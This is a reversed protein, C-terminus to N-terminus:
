FRYLLLITIYKRINLLLLLILLKSQKEFSTDATLLWCTGNNSLQENDLEGQVNIVLRDDLSIPITVSEAPSRMSITRNTNGVAYSFTYSTYRCIAANPNPLLSFGYCSGDVGSCNFVEGIKPKCSM